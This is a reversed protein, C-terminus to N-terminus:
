SFRSFLVDGFLGSAFHEQNSISTSDTKRMKFTTM